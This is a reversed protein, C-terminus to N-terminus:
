QGAITRPPRVRAEEGEWLPSRWHTELFRQDQVLPAGQDRKKQPKPRRSPAAVPDELSEAELRGSHVRWGRTASALRILGRQMVISGTSERGRSFRLVLSTDKGLRPGQHIVSDDVPASTYSSLRSLLESCPAKATHNPSGTPPTWCATTTDGCFCLHLICMTGPSCALVLGRPFPLVPSPFPGPLPM